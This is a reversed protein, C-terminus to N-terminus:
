SRGVRAATGRAGSRRQRLPRPRRRSPPESAGSCSRGRPAAQPRVSDIPIVQAEEAAESVTEEETEYALPPVGEDRSAGAEELQLVEAEAGELLVGGGGGPAPEVEATIEEVPEPVELATEPQRAGGGAGGLVMEAEEVAAVTEAVEEPAIDVDLDEATVLEITDEGEVVPRARRLSSSSEPEAKGFQLVQGGAEAKRAEAV